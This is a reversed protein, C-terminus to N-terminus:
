HHRQALVRDLPQLRGMQRVCPFAAVEHFLGRPGQQATIQERLGAVREWRHGLRVDETWAFGKPLLHVVEGVGRM